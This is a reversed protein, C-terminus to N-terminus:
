LLQADGDDTPLELKLQCRGPGWSSGTSARRAEATKKTHNSAAHKKQLSQIKRAPGTTLSPQLTEMDGRVNSCGGNEVGTSAQKGDAGAVGGAVGRRKSLRVRSDRTFVIDAATLLAASPQQQEEASVCSPSGDEGQSWFINSLESSASRPSRAEWGAVAIDKCGNGIEAASGDCNICSINDGEGTSELIPRQRGPSLQDLRAATVISAAPTTVGLAGAMQISSPVSSAQHSRILGPKSVLSKSDTPVSHKEVLSGKRQRSPSTRSRGGADKEVDRNAPAPIATPAKPNSNASRRRGLSLAAVQRSKFEHEVAELQQQPQQVELPQPPPRSQQQLQAQGTRLASQSFLESTKAGAGAGRPPVDSGGVSSSDAGGTTAVAAATM